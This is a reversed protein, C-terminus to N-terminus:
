SRPVCVCVYVCVQGPARQKYYSEVESARQQEAELQLCPGPPLCVPLAAEVATLRRFNSRLWAVCRALQWPQSWMRVGAPVALCFAQCMFRSVHAHWYMLRAQSRLAHNEAQLSTARVEAESAQQQLAALRAVADASSPPGAAAAAELQQVRDSWQQVQSRYEAVAAQLTANERQLDELAAQHGSGTSISGAASAAVSELHQVRATLAANQQQLAEALAEQQEGGAQLRELEAALAENQQQLAAAAASQQDRSGAAVAEAEALRDALAAAAEAQQRGWDEAQLARGVAEEVAM